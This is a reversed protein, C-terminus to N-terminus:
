VTHLTCCNYFKKVHLM